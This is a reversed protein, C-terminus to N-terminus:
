ANKRGVFALPYVRRPLARQLRGGYGCADQGQKASVTEVGSFFCTFRNFDLFVLLDSEAMRREFCNRKYTGDIVWSSNKDLFDKVIASMEEVSREEWDPLFHVSDLHLVPIAYAKSLAKALTSKGSGSYGFISIKM